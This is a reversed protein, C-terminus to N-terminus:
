CSQLGNVAEGDRVGAGQKAPFPAAPSHLVYVSRLCGTRTWLSRLPPSVRAKECPQPESRWRSSLGGSCFSTVRRARGSVPNSNSM